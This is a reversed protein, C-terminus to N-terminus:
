EIVEDARAILTAPITLGLAKATKLNIVLEVKVAQQVPLDAPEAGKLIKGTYIGVLRYSDALDAGYSMLGGAAPFLRYVYIAPVAHRAALAVIQARQNTFFTDASVVLAGARLEVLTGFAADIESPTSAPLTRLQLGLSPAADRLGRMEPETLPNSPNVLLAISAASPLLEHLLDLRKAALEIQLLAVGRINGGPRNLSAVLGLQVPDVGLNFVIPITSTAAKAAFTPPTGGTVIVTLPRRVLDAALAPLRDYQGEAWRYEIVVSQGEVYGTENLGQRFAILRAPINDSEPSGNSLYGIVPMPQQGLADVPWAVATCGLLAM